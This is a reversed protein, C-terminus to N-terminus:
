KVHDLGVASQNLPNTLLAARSWMPNDVLADVALKMEASGAIYAPCCLNAALSQGLYTLGDPCDM